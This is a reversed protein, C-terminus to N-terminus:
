FQSCLFCVAGGGITAAADAFEPTGFGQADYLEKGVAAVTVVAMAWLPGFVFAVPVFLVAGYFFHNAKDAPLQPLKIM